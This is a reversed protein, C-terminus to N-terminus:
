SIHTVYLILIASLITIIIISLLSSLIIYGLVRRKKYGTFQKLSVFIMLVSIINLIGLGFLNGVISYISYANSTYVLAVIFESFRLDPIAPTTRFFFFLPISFLILFLLSFVAPNKERLSDMINVFKNTANFMATKRRQNLIEKIQEEDNEIQEEDNEIQEENNIKEEQDAVVETRTADTQQEKNELIPNIGHEVVLSFTALIFFMQIPPFYASQMGSLYDRIMYGPRFMLDRITRFMSRNGLGWVDLFNLIAKKFSFRGINASQGCRPCYNGIYETGCSSCKHNDDSLPAVEYPRLQWIHFARRWVARKQKDFLYGIEKKKM